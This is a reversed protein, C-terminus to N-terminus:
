FPIETPTPEVIPAPKWDRVRAAYAEAAIAYPDLSCDGRLAAILVRARTDDLAADRMKRRDAEPIFSDDFEPGTRSAPLIVPYRVKRPRAAWPRTM